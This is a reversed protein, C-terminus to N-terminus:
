QTLEEEGRGSSIEEAEAARDDRMADFDKVADETLDAILRGLEDTGNIECAVDVAIRRAEEFSLEIGMDEARAMVDDEVYVMGVSRDWEDRLDDVLAKVAPEFGDPHAIAAKLEESVAQRNLTTETVRGMAGTIAMAAREVEESITDILDTEDGNLLEPQTEKIVATVASRLADLLSPDEAWGAIRESALLMRGVQGPSWEDRKLVMEEADEVLNQAAWACAAAAQKRTVLEKNM